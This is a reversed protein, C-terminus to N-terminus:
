QLLYDWDEEAAHRESVVYVALRAEVTLDSWIQRMTNHVHNRWDYMRSTDNWQPDDIEALIEDRSSHCQSAALALLREDIQLNM